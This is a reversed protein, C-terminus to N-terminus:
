RSCNKWGAPAKCGSYGKKNKLASDFNILFSLISFIGFPRIMVNIGHLKINKNEYKRYDAVFFDIGHVLKRLASFLRTQRGFDEVIIDRNATYRSTLVLIEM